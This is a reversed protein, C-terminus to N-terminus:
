AGEEHDGVRRGHVGSVVGLKEHGGELLKHGYPGKTTIGRKGEGGTAAMDVHGEGAAKTLWAGGEGEGRRGGRRGGARRGFRSRVSWAVTARCLLLTAALTSGTM